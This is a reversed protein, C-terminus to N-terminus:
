RQNWHVIIEYDGNIGNGYNLSYPNSSSWGPDNDYEDKSFAWYSFVFGDNPFAELEVVSNAQYLGAGTVTGGNIGDYNTVSVTYNLGTYDVLISMNKEVTFTNTESEVYEGTEDNLIKIKPTDGSALTKPYVVFTSNYPLLYTSNRKINDVNDTNISMSAIKGNKTSNFSIQRVDIQSYELTLTENSQGSSTFEKYILNSNLYSRDIFQGVGNSVITEINYYEGTYSNYLFEPIYINYTYGYIPMEYVNESVYHVLHNNYILNNGALGSPDVLNITLTGKQIYKQYVNVNTFKNAQIEVNLPNQDFYNVGDISFHDLGITYGDDRTGEQLELKISVQSSGNCNKFYMKEPGIQEDDLFLKAYSSDSWYNTKIGAYGPRILDSESVPEVLDEEVYCVIKNDSNIGVKHLRYLNGPVLTTLAVNDKPNKVSINKLKYDYSSDEMYLIVYDSNPEININECWLDDKFSIYRCNDGVVLNNLCGKFLSYNDDSYVRFYEVNNGISLNEVFGYDRNESQEGYIQIYSCNNGISVNRIYQNTGDYGILKINNCNNGIKINSACSIIIDDSNIIYINSSNNFLSDTLTGTANISQLNLFLNRFSGGYVNIDFTDLFYCFMSFNNLGLINSRVFVNGISTGITMKNGYLFIEEYFELGGKANYCWINFCSDNLNLGNLIFKRDGYLVSEPGDGAIKKLFNIFDKNIQFVNFPLSWKYFGFGDVIYLSTKAKEMTLGNFYYFINEHEQTDDDYLDFTYYWDFNEFDFEYNIDNDGGMFDYFFMTLLNGFRETVNSTGFETVSSSGYVLTKKLNELCDDLYGKDGYVTVDSLAYLKFQINLYDYGLKNSFCDEMEYVVGKGEMHIADVINISPGIINENEGFLMLPYINESQSPTHGSVMCFMLNIYMSSEELVIKESNFLYLDYDTNEVTFSKNTKRLFGTISEPGGEEGIVLTIEYYNKAWDFRNIDNDITYKIKWSKIDYNNFFTVGDHAVIKCNESLHSNDIANVLIDYLVPEDVVRAFEMNFESIRMEAYLLINSPYPNIETAYDTIQYTVSTDLESNNRLDLLELYTIKLPESYGSGGSGMIGQIGQIGFIGQVGDTGKVGQIGQEGIKGQIGQLGNNGDVGSIGQLGQSGNVGGIGQFGIIGQTGQIGFSGQVGQIGTEGNFGSIGQIGQEGNLGEPGQFGGFGQIGQIGQIYFGGIKGDKGKAGQIGQFGRVYQSGEGDCCNGEFRNIADELLKFNKNITIRSYDFTDTGLIETIKNVM